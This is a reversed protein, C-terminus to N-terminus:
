GDTEEEKTQDLQADHYIMDFQASLSRKAPCVDMARVPHRQKTPAPPCPKTPKRAHMM